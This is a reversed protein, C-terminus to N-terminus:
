KVGSGHLYVQGGASLQAIVPANTRALANTTWDAVGYFLVSLLGIMFVNGANLQIHDAQGRPITGQGLM